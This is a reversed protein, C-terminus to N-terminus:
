LGNSSRQFVRLFAELCVEIKRSVGMFSEQFVNLVEKFCGQFV